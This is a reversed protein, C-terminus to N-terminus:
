KAAQVIKVLKPPTLLGYPMLAPKGGTGNQTRILPALMNGLTGTVEIKVTNDGKKLADTIDGRFPSFALVGVDVDNVTVAFTSGAAGALDIEYSVADDKELNFTMTYTISGTYFPYGQSSWDGAALTEPERIITYGEEAPGLAFDGLIYLPAIETDWLFDTTATVTNSGEVVKGAINFIRIRRDIHWRGPTFDLEEGNLKIKFPDSTEMALSINKPIDRVTFTFTLITENTRSRINKEKLVWPQYGKYEIIGTSKWIADKVENVPANELVIRGDMELTCRDIVLCNEHLAKYAYPGEIVLHQESRSWTEGTVSTQTQDVLFIKVGAPALQTTIITKGGAYGAQYRFARGTAPDLEVVGGLADVTITVDSVKGIDTSALFIMHAAAERRHNVLISRAESGDGATVSITRGSREVIRTTVMGPDDPLTTITDHGALSSIRSDTAGDVRSPIDGMLLVQGTFMELLEITTSRWTLAYPLIVYRYEANGVVFLDGSVGGHRALIREDVIDFSIHEAALEEILKEFSRVIASTHEGGEKATTDFAGCVSGFPAIVLVSATSKGQSVAWSCRAIFDNLVRLRDWYPQHYSFTSPDREKGIGSMSYQMHHLSFFTAGLACRSAAARKMDEFTIGYGSSDPIVAIARKKGLQNAVSSAKKVSSVLSAGHGSSGTGPIDLYELHPMDSFAPSCGCPGDHITEYRGTFQLTHDHCWTSVPATFSEIFRETVTAWYDHRFAFGEDDGATLLHHLKDIPSYGRMHEFYDAFGTTWPFERGSHRTSEDGTVPRSVNPGDTFIGPMHEGFDYRFDKSYREHTTDIFAKVADPNLLDTYAQGNFHPHGKGIRREYFVGIGELKEPKERVLSVTGDASKLTFAHAREIVTSELASADDTWVLSVPLFEGHQKIVTGGAYGSPTRDEDHLWAEIKVESATEVAKRVAKIWDDGLYPTKLGDASHIIFGGFGRKKMDRIQTEIESTDIQSNWSWVPSPRYHKPPDVFEKLNMLSGESWYQYTVLQWIIEPADNM